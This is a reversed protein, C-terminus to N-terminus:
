VQHAGQVARAIGLYYEVPDTKPNPDYSHALRDLTISAM